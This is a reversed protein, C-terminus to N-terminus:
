KGPSLDQRTVRLFTGHISNMANPENEPIVGWDFPVHDYVVLLKNPEVEVMGTYRTGKERFLETPNTWTVGGDTSFHVMVPDPRGTSLVLVGNKMLWLCPEVGRFGISTPKTWTLGEDNSWSKYIVNNSGRRMVAFLQNDKVRLMRPETFGETKTEGELVAAAEDGAITSVYKWTKGAKDSRVIYSRFYKDGEMKGYMTTLWEGGRTEVIDGSFLAMAAEKIKGPGLSAFHTVKQNLQQRAAPKPLHIRVDRSFLITEGHNSFRVSSAQLHRFNDKEAPLPYGALMLMSGDSLPNRTYAAERYVFGATNRMGWTKGKDKSILFAWFVGEVDHHDPDMSIDCILEGTSLMQLSPFYGYYHSQNITVTDLVTVNVQGIAIRSVTLIMALTIVFQNMLSARAITKMVAEATLGTESNGHRPLCSEGPVVRLELEFGNAESGSCRLSDGGLRM